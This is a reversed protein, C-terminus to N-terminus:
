VLQKADDIMEQTVRVSREAMQKAKIWDGVDEAKKREEAAKEKSENRKDTEKSKMEPPRGDFVWVPKIGNELFQITRYFIGGLHGTLNGNKDKLETLRHRGKTRITQTAILFQYITMSADVAVVKGSLKNLPIYKIALPSKDQILPMLSKIGM